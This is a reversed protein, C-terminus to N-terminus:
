QASSNRERVAEGLVYLDRDGRTARLAKQFFDEKEGEPANKYERLCNEFSGEGGESREM